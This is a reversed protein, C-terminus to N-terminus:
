GDSAEEQEYEYLIDQRPSVNWRNRKAIKWCKKMNDAVTHVKRGKPYAYISGDYLGFENSIDNIYEEDTETGVKFIFDVNGYSSAQSAYFDLAEYDFEHDSPVWVSFSDAARVFDRSPKQNLEDVEFDVFRPKIIDLFTNVAETNRDHIPETGGIVMRASGSRLKSAWGHQEFQSKMYRITQAHNDHSSIKLRVVPTGANMGYEKIGYDWGGRIVNIEKQLNSM